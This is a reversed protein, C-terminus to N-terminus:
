WAGEFTGDTVVGLVDELAGESAVAPVMSSLKPDANHADAKLKCGKYYGM